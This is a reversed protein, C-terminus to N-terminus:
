SFRTSSATKDALRSTNARCSRMCASNTVPKTTKRYKKWLLPDIHGEADLPAIFDYGHRPSGFPFERSRALNLLIRNLDILETLARM